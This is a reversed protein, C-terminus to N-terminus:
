SVFTAGGAGSQRTPPLVKQLVIEVGATPGYVKTICLPACQADDAWLGAETIADLVSRAYKDVDGTGKRTPRLHAALERVLGQATFHAKPRQLVVMINVAVAEDREAREWGVAEAMEALAAALQSRWPKLRNDADRMWVKSGARALTKSGQPRPQGPFWLRVM